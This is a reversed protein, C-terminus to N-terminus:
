SRARLIAISAARSSCSAARGVGSDACSFPCVQETHKCWLRFHVADKVVDTASLQRVDAIHSGCQLMYMIIICLVFPSGSVAGYKIVLSKVRKRLVVAFAEQLFKGGCAPFPKVRDSAICFAFMSKTIYLVASEFVKDPLYVSQRGNWLNIITYSFFESIM